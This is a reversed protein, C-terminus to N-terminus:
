NELFRDYRLTRGHDRLDQLLKTHTAALEEGEKRYVDLVADLGKGVLVQLQFPGKVEAYLEPM